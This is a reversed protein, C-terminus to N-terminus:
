RLPVPHCNTTIRQTQCIPISFYFASGEGLRSELWFHGSHAEVLTKSIYLGLGLGTRDKSPLQTFRRFIELQKDQPIGPGDDSVSFHINNVQKSLSIIVEGAKGIYKLANGVLNSLVQHIRHPDCELYLDESPRRILLNCGLERARPTFIDFVSSAISLASSYSYNINLKNQAFREADLLDSILRLSIDANRKIVEVFNRIEVSLTCDNQEELILKSYALIAGVPNRLDHSVIALLEERSTLAHQTTEHAARENNFRLSTGKCSKDTAAREVFLNRDTAQREIELYRSVFTSAMYREEAITKDMRSREACTALDTRHREDLLEDQSTTSATLDLKIREDYTSRSATLMHDAASRENDVVEDTQKQLTRNAQEISSAVKNREANLSRDTDDRELKFDIRESPNM